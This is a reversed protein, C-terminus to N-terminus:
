IRVGRFYSHTRKGHRKDWYAQQMTDWWLFFFHSRRSVWRGKVTTWRTAARYLDGRWEDIDEIKM